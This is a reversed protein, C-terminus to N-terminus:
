SNYREVGRVRFSDSFDMWSKKWIEFLISRAQKQKCLSGSYFSLIQTDEMEGKVSDM